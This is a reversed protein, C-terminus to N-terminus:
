GKTKEPAKECILIEADEDTDDFEPHGGKFFYYKGDRVAMLFDNIFTTEELRFTNLNYFLLAYQNMSPNCTRIQVALKGKDTHVGTIASYGTKWRQMNIRFNNPNAAAREKESRIYNSEPMKKYFTPVELRLTKLLKIDKVSVIQVMMEDELFFLVVDAGNAALFSYKYNDDSVYRPYKRSIVNKIFKGDAKYVKLYHVSFPQNIGAVSTIDNQYGCYFLKNDLCLADRPIFASGETQLWFTKHHSYKGGKKAFLKIRKAFGEIALHDGMMYMVRAHDVEDPGQGFGAIPASGASNFGVVGVYAGSAILLQDKDVIADFYASGSWESKAPIRNVVKFSEACTLSM